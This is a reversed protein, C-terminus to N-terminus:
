TIYIAFTSFAYLICLFRVFIGWFSQCAVNKMWCNIFKKMFEIKNSSSCSLFRLLISDFRLGRLLTSSYGVIWRLLLLCCRFSDFWITLDWEHRWLLATAGELKWCFSERKRWGLTNWRFRLTRSLLAVRKWLRTFSANVASNNWGDNSEIGRRAEEISWRTSSSSTLERKRERERGEHFREWLDHFNRVLEGVRSSSKRPWYFDRQRM